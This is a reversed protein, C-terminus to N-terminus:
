PLSRFQAQSQRNNIGGARTKIGQASTQTLYANRIQRENSPNNIATITHMTLSVRGVHKLANILV